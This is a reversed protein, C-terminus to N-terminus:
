YVFPHQATLFYLLAVIISCIFYILVINKIIKISNFMSENREIERLKFNIESEVYLNQIEEDTRDLEIKQEITRLLRDQKEKFTSM